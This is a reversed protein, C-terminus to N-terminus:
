TVWTNQQNGLSTIKLRELKSAPNQFSLFTLVEEKLSLKALLYSQRQSSGLCKSRSHWHLEFVIRCNDSLPDRDVVVPYFFPLQAYTRMILDFVLHVIILKYYFCLFFCTLETYMNQPIYQTKVGLVSLRRSASIHNSAASTTTM